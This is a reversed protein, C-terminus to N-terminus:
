NEENAAAPVRGLERNKLRYSDGKLSSRWSGAEYPRARPRIRHCIAPRLERIREKLVTMGGPWSIREAIATAPMTPVARLQERVRPEFVDVASGNTEPRIRRAKPRWRLGSPTASLM